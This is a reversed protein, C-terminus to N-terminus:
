WAVVYEPGRLYPWLSSPVHWLIKIFYQVIHWCTHPLININYGSSIYVTYSTEEQSFWVKKFNCLCTCWVFLVQYRHLHLRATAVDEPAQHNFRAFSIFSLYIYGPGWFFKGKGHFKPKIDKRGGIFLFSISNNHVFYLFYHLKLTCSGNRIVFAHRSIDVAPSDTEEKIISHSLLSSNMM